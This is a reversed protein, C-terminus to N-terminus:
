DSLFLWGVLVRQGDEGSCMSGVTERGLLCFPAIWDTQASYYSVVVWVDIRPMGHTETQSEVPHM